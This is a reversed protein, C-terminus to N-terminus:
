YCHILQKQKNAEGVEDREYHKAMRRERSEWKKLRALYSQEKEKLKKKLARRERADDSDESEERDRSRVIM